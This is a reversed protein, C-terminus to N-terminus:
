MECTSLMVEDSCKVNRMVSPLLHRSFPTNNMSSTSEEVRCCSSYYGRGISVPWGAYSTILHAGESPGGGAIMVM